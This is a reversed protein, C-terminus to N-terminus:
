NRLPLTSLPKAPTQSWTNQHREDQKREQVESLCGDNRSDEWREESKSAKEKMGRRRKKRVVAKKWGWDYEKGIEEWLFSTRFYKKKQICLPLNSLICCFISFFLQLLFYRILSFVSSCSGYCHKHFWILSIKQKKKRSKLAILIPPKSESVRSILLSLCIRCLHVDKKRSVIYCNKTWEM